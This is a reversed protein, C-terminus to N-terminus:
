SPCIATNWRFSRSMASDNLFILLVIVIGFELKLTPLDAILIIKKEKSTAFSGM